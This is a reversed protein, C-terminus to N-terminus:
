PSFIEDAREQTLLARSVLLDKATQVVPDSSLVGGQSVVYLFFDRVQWANLDHLAQKEAGTLRNRFTKYPIPVDPVDITTERVSYGSGSWPYAVGHVTDGNPLRIPNPIVLFVQVIDNTGDDVLAYGVVQM